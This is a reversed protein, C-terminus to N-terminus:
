LPPIIPLNRFITASSARFGSTTQLGPCLSSHYAPGTELTREALKPERIALFTEFLADPRRPRLQARVPISGETDSGPLEPTWLLRGNRRDLHLALSHKLRETVVPVGGSTISPLRPVTRVHAPPKFRKQTSFCGVQGRALKELEGPFVAFVQLPKDIPGRLPAADLVPVMSSTDSTGLVAHAKSGDGRAAQPRYPIDSAPEGCNSKLADVGDQAYFIDVCGDIMVRPHKAELEIPLARSANPRHRATPTMEKQALTVLTMWTSPDPNSHFISVRQELLVAPRLSSGAGALSSDRPRRFAPRLYRRCHAAGQIRALFVFRERAHSSM